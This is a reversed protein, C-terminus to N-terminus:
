IRLVRTGEQNVTHIVESLRIPKDQVDEWSVTSFTKVEDAVEHIIEAATSNKYASYIYDAGIFLGGLILIVPILQTLPFSELLWERWYELMKNVERANFTLTHSSPNTM